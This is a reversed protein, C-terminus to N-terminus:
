GGAVAGIGCPFGSLMKWLKWETLFERRCGKQKWHRRVNKYSPAATMNEYFILNQSFIVYEM